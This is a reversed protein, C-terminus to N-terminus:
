RNDGDGKLTGSDKRKQLKSLNRQAVTEMTVGLNTCLESVYWLVDGIEDVIAKKRDETLVSNDDRMVKKLKGCIEAAESALGLTCYTIAEMETKKPYIATKSTSEQYYNFPMSDKERWEGLAESAGM